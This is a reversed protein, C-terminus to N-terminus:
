LDLSAALLERHFPAGGFAAELGRARRTYLQLDHEETFGVAGHVQQALACVRRYSESAWAKAMSVESAAPAGEAVRWVAQYALLRACEVETAMDACHHQVAQFSGIPRGFQVRERAYEVTMDLVADAGGLMEVAKVAAARQITRELVPGGRDAEGLIQSHDVLADKFTLECQKDSGLTRHPSIELGETVAPVLFNTVGYSPGEKEPNESSTRAAVIMFDCVQGDPVFLKTGDLTHGSGDLSAAMQVDGALYSATPETVALTMKIRGESIAPLYELKQDESGADLVTLGGLVVSSFFPGPLLARGMEEVLVALDLLSGGTGGYEEPFALGLWGLDAIQRWLEPPYGSEDTEMARVLDRPCERALFERATSRLMQQTENFGLDM